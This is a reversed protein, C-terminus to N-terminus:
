EPVNVHEFPADGRIVAVEAVHAIAPSGAPKVEVHEGPGCGILTAGPADIVHVTDPVGVATAVVEIVPVVLALLSGFAAFLEAMEDILVVPESIVGSRLPRGAVAVTPM